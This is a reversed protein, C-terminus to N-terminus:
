GGWFRLAGEPFPSSISAWSIPGKPPAKPASLVSQLAGPRLQYMGTLRAEASSGLRGGDRVELETLPTVKQLLLRAMSRTTATIRVVALALSMAEVCKSFHRQSNAYRVM